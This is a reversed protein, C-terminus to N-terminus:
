VCQRILSCFTKRQTQTTKMRRWRLPDYRTAGIFIQQRWKFPCLHLRHQQSFSSPDPDIKQPVIKKRLSLHMTERFITAVPLLTDENAKAALSPFDKKPSIWCQILPKTECTDASLEALQESMLVAGDATNREFSFQMQM